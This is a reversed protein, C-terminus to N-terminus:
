RVMRVGGSELVADRASKTDAPQESGLLYLRFKVGNTEQEHVPPLQQPAPSATTWNATVPASNPTRKELAELRAELAAVRRDLQAIRDNDPASADAPQQAERQSAWATGILGVAVLAVVFRQYSSV